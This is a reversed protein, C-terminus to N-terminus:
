RWTGFTSPGQWLCPLILRRTYWLKNLPFLCYLEEVTNYTYLREFSSWVDLLLTFFVTSVSTPSGARAAVHLPSTGDAQRANVETGPHSLLAAVAAEGVEGARAAVHLAAFQNFGTKANQNVGRSILLDILDADGRSAAWCMLNIAVGDVLIEASKPDIAGDRILHQVTDSDGDNVADQLNEEARSLITRLEDLRAIRERLVAKDKSDDIAPTWAEFDAVRSKLRVICFAGLDRPTGQCGMWDLHLDAAFALPVVRAM